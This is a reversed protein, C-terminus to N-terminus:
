KYGVRWLEEAMGGDCVYELFAKEVRAVVAADPPIPVFHVVECVEYTRGVGIRNLM